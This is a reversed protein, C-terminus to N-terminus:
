ELLVPKSFFFATFSVAYARQPQARADKDTSSSVQPRRRSKRSLSSAPSMCRDESFNEPSECSRWPRGGLALSEQLAAAIRASLGALTEPM